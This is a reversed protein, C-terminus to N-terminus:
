IEKDVDSWKFLPHTKWAQPRGAPGQAVFRKTANSLRLNVVFNYLGRCMREQDAVFM